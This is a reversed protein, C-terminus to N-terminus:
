NRRANLQGLLAFLFLIGFTVLALQTATNRLPDAPDIEYELQFLVHLGNLVLASGAAATGLLVVIWGIARGFLAGIVAGGAAVVVQMVDGPVQETSVEIVGIALIAAVLGFIAGALLLGFKALVFLLIAGILGAILAIPMERERDLEEMLRIALLFGAGFGVAAMAFRFLRSGYVAIFIGAAIMGGGWLWEETTLTEM